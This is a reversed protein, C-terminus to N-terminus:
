TLTSSYGHYTRRQLSSQRLVNHLILAGKLSDSKMMIEFWEPMWVDLRMRWSTPLTKRWISTIFAWRWPFFYHVSGQTRMTVLQHFKLNRQNLRTQDPTSNSSKLDFQFNRKGNSNSHYITRSIMKQVSLVKFKAATQESVSQKMALIVHFQFRNSVLWKNLPLVCKLCMRNELRKWVNKVSFTIFVGFISLNLSENM